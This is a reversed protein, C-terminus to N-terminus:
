RRYLPFCFSFEFICIQLFKLRDNELSSGEVKYTLITIRVQQNIRKNKLHHPTDRRHLRQKEDVGGLGAEEGAEEAGAVTEQM